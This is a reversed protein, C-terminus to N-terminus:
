RSSATIERIRSLLDSPEFPKGVFEAGQWEDDSSPTMGSLILVPICETADHSRLEELVQRGDLKPMLGDLLIVDPLREKAMAVAEQGDAALIVGYGKIDLMVELTVRIGPDDEAVLVLPRKHQPSRKDSL